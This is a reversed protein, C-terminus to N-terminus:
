KTRSIGGGRRLGGCANCTFTSARVDRAKEGKPFTMDDGRGAVCDVIESDKGRREVIGEHCCGLGTIAFWDVARFYEGM